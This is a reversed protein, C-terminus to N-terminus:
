ALERLAALSEAYPARVVGKETIIATILEAPTVDFAPNLVDAGDATVRVGGIHTVEAADRYEIPIGDGTPTDFDVTSTPAAVYFPIGHYRSCVAVTYTGIKNATDGNAAIRDAGVVACHIRGQKMLSAAMGDTVVTVPIGDQVLEWATLSAGQMRPRTEDAVVSIRKGQEVAARIVGLATGYGACALAGANCHTLVTWGDELLDAGARGLRRNTELDEDLIRLAEQVLENKVQPVSRDAALCAVRKMREVAWFLNVATPRTSAFTRVVEAWGSLFADPADPLSQAGLAMGLAATVGIAPAGRVKMDRIATAVDRYDRYELFKVERPLATQDLLIVRGDRWAVTPPVGTKM